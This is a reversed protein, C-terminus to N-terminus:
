HCKPLAQCATIDCPCKDKIPFDFEASSETSNDAIPRDLTYGVTGAATLSLAFIAAIGTPTFM